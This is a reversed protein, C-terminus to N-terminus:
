NSLLSKFLLRTIKRRRPKLAYILDFIDSTHKGKVNKALEAIRM